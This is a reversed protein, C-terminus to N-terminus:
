YRSRLYADVIPQGAVLALLGALALYPGFPMKYGLGRRAMVIGVIGIVAGVLSSTLVILPLMKWGLWAGLAALLKFDGQGLGETKRLVKFLNAVVWFFLYGAAAGIVAENESVITGNLNLLLGAWLLSLTLEDPLLTTDADIFSMAILMYVFFLSALGLAGSGFHWIMFVSLLGTLLEVAPYRMSIPAKCASCKGGLVLYSLVPINELATIKHGCHPCASNPLVLNYTDTHPLPVTSEYTISTVASGLHAADARSAQYEPLYDDSQREFMRPLRHIVVNLFSGFLLGFVGAVAAPFVSGPAAFFFMDLM